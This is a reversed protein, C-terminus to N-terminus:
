LNIGTDEEREEKEVPKGQVNEGWHRRETHLQNETRYKRVM